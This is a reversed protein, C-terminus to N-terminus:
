SNLTLLYRQVLRSSAKQGVPDQRDYLLAKDSQLMHILSTNNSHGCPKIAKIYRHIKMPACDELM